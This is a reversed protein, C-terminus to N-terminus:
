KTSSKFWNFLIIGLATITMFNICYRYFDIEPIWGILHYVCGYMVRYPPVLYMLIIIIGMVVLVIRQKKNM